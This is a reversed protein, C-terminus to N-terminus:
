LTPLNDEKPHKIEPVVQSHAYSHSLKSLYARVYLKEVPDLRPTKLELIEENNEM